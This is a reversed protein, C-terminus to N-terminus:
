FEYKLSAQMCRGARGDCTGLVSNYRGFTSTVDPTMTVDATNFRQTNTV